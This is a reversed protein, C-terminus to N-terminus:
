KECRIEKETRLNRRWSPLGGAVSGQPEGKELKGRVYNLAIEPSKKRKKKVRNAGTRGPTKEERKRSLQLSDMSIM